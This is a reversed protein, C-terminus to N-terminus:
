PKGNVKSLLTWVDAARTAPDCALSGSFLTHLWQKETANLTEDRQVLQMAYSLLTDDKKLKDLFRLSSNSPGPYLTGDEATIPIASFHKEFIFWLCLLGYSFVDTRFAQSCTFRPNLDCEPAYWPWSRPVTVSTSEYGRWISFGFDAVKATFELDGDEEGKFILINEPKIYGHIIYQTQMHALAGGIEVCIRWRMTFEIGQGISGQAFRYLDGFPAKQFVLVPWVKDDQLMGPSSRSPVDWCIGQLQLVYEQNLVVSNCLIYIENMLRLLIEDDAQVKHSAM